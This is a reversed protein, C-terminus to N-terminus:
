ESPCCLSKRMKFGVLAIDVALLSGDKGLFGPEYASMGRQSRLELTVLPNYMTKRYLDIMNRYLDSHTGAVVVRALSRRVSCIKSEGPDFCWIKPYRMIANGTLRQYVQMFIGLFEHDPNNNERM